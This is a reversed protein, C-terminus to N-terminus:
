PTVPEVVAVLRAPGTIRSAACPPATTLEVTLRDGSRCRVAVRGAAVAAPLTLAVAVAGTGCCCTEGEVGREFTRLVVERGAVGGVLDVNAGDPGLGPHRRLAGGVIAVEITAPDDVPVVLHPVGVTVLWGSWTHGSTELSLPRPPAPPPPLELTVTGDGHVSAPVDGWGTRLVVAPGLGLERSAALAACRSGNACFASPSADANRHVIRLTGDVEPLVALVGDAGIGRHRRCLRRVLEADDALRGAWDGFGVLFDNGAGEAKLLRGTTM